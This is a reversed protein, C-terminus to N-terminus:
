KGIPTRSCYEMPLSHSFEITLSDCSRPECSIYQSISLLLFDSHGNDIRNDMTFCGSVLCLLERLCRHLRINQPFIWIYREIDDDAIADRIIERMMTDDEGCVSASFLFFEECLYEMFKRVATDSQTYSARYIQYCPKTGRSWYKELSETTFPEITEVFIRLSMEHSHFFYDRKEM